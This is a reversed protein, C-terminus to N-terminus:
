LTTDQSGALTAVKRVWPASCAKSRPPMNIQIISPMASHLSPTIRTTMVLGKMRSGLVDFIKQLATFVM